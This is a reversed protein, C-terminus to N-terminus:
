RASPGFKSLVDMADSVSSTTIDRSDRAEELALSEKLQLVVTSMTPRQTAVESICLMATDVVKWMSSIDYLDKLRADAVLSINGSAVKQKVRQIIHGSGPLIPPEGTAVELLVVGFSYVDSSETLRGTHYYEPDIYGMTGAANSTSIHTQTESIYTKSLGFDAIKAKLNEGLLVNNTKVDGHIIPLNCGKHLYELGQAADLVVRVRTVWNFTDGVGFKGRLHDCLNGRAMYEYALALHDKEWCYGVLSVLNKHHVKTLSQVEALFQDLGNESFESLMKVAVETKNELCGYYVNGFGGRGIFQQFNNTFKKLEEYTFQRSETIQLPDFPNTKREPSTKIDPVQPPVYTPINPKRKVRWIMYALVLLAVVLVPVVVSIALIGTRNRSPSSGITKNCMNGDSGYFKELATLLTFNNSIVGFLNSNSLDISIIRMINGSTNRCKIGDWAFEPPFCPDGMWNKKVGYELKIAMITDFDKSFTTTGDYTILFYIEFANLMPPLASNATAALTINYEGAIARFLPTYVSSSLLYHPTYNYVVQNADPYADFERLKSSQFDAFHLYVVYEKATTDQWSIVNLVTSNGSPTVATQLVSSPVAFTSGTKITSTTSLNAWAPDANMPWWYRDYPDDPYMNKRYAHNKCSSWVLHRRIFNNAAMNRRRLMALSQNAMVAPYLSDVLPRLEVTSVFPTGSGTNVLCVPAWSAWAVFVAEHVEGGSGTGGQVTTWRSLGLYLDFRLAAAAASSSSSSINKGDYNGYVFVLRVLYKSGAATPLTYCNRVGSPFSRLTQDPRQFSSAYEAAVKHNEGGDVYPGDPVYLIRNDDQYSSNAELGCDISLYGQQSVAPVVATALVLVAFFALFEM